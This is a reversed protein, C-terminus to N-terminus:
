QFQSPPTSLLLHCLFLPKTLDTGALAAAKDEHPKAAPTDAPVSQATLASASLALAWTLVIKRM